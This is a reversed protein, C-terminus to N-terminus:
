PITAVVVRTDVNSGVPTEATAASLVVLEVIMGGVIPSLRRMTRLM